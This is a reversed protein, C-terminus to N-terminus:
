DKIRLQDLVEGKGISELERVGRESLVESVKEILEEKNLGSVGSM